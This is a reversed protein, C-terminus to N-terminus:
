VDFVKFLPYFLFYQRMKFRKDHTAEIFSSAFGISETLINCSNHHINIFVTPKKPENYKIADFYVLNMGVNYQIKCEKQNFDNDEHCFVGTSFIPM